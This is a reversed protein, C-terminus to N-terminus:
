RAVQRPEPDDDTWVWVNPNQAPPWSRGAEHKGDHDKDRTCVLRTTLMGTPAYIWSRCVLDDSWKV